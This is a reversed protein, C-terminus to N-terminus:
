REKGEQTKRNLGGGEQGQGRDEEMGWFGLTDPNGCSRDSRPASTLSLIAKGMGKTRSWCGPSICKSDETIPIPTPQWAWFGLPFNLLAFEKNIKLLFDPIVRFGLSHKWSVAKHEAESLLAGASEWMRQWWSQQCCSCIVWPRAQSGAQRDRSQLGQKASM